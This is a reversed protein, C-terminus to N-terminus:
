RPISANASEQENSSVNENLQKPEDSEIPSLSEATDPRGQPLIVLFRCGKGERSSVEIRGHHREVIRWAKSLGFGLGRGAERGSFFPDFLHRKASENLGTGCDTVHIEICDTQRNISTEVTLQGGAQMAEIGNVCIAKLAATIQVPDAWCHLPLDRNFIEFRIGDAIPEGTIEDRIKNLVMDLQVQAAEMRPPKAFLMLDAIMEYARFAQQNIALLKKRREPDQENHVLTQARTSINALPNNIEHSAGYALQQMAALKESQLRQDFQEELDDLRNLKKLLLPVLTRFEPYPRFWLLKEEDSVMESASVSEAAIDEIAQLVFHDVSQGGLQHSEAANMWAPWNLYFGHLPSHGNQAAYADLQRKVSQLMGRWFASISNSEGADRMRQAALRGTAIAQSSIKRWAARTRVSYAKTQLSRNSSPAIKRRASSTLWRIALEFRDLHVNDHGATCVAWSALLPDIELASRLADQRDDLDDHLLGNVLIFATHEHLPIGACNADVLLPLEYVRDRGSGRSHDM